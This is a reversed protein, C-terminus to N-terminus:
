SSQLDNDGAKTCSGGNIQTATLPNSGSVKLNHSERAVVARDRLKRSWRSEFGYWAGHCPPITVM